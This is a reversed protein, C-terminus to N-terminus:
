PFAVTTPRAHRERLHPTLYTGNVLCGKIVRGLADRRLHVLSSDSSFDDVCELMMRFGCGWHVEDSTGDGWRLKVFGIQGGPNRADVAVVPPTEATYPILVTVYYDHRREMRAANLCIQPAPVNENEGPLWGRPPVREGQHVALKANAPRLPFLMLLNSAGWHAVVRSGDKAYNLSPGDSLQWNIEFGPREDEPDEPTWPLRNMSDAVFLFRDQVWLLTRHHQALIGNRAHTFNWALATDWYGGEYVSFAADYGPAHFAATRVPDAAQQNLGSLNCTNHARTSRGALAWEDAGYSLWGPDVLLTRRNAHLQLSNRSLHCHGGGWRTADFSIWSADEDWGTRSFLLGAEPYYQHLTPPMLPLGSTRRFAARESFYDRAKHAQGYGSKYARNRVNGVFVSQSDHIGCNYGSPKTAAALFDYMGSLTELTMVLGLSSQVQQWRFLRGFIRTVSAHYSPNRECHVYDPLIQRHWADNLVRVGRERWGSAEALFDLHLAVRLLSDANFVRWNDGVSLHRELYVTGARLFEIARHLFPEEFDPHETLLPLARAWNALRLGLTLVNQAEQNEQPGLRPFARMFADLYDRAAEGYRAERTHAYALALSPLFWMRYHQGRVEACSVQRAVRGWDVPRRGLDVSQTGHHEVTVVGHVGLDALRRTEEDWQREDETAAYPVRSSAM